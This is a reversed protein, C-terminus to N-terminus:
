QDCDVTVGQHCYVTLEGMEVTVCKRPGDVCQDGMEECCFDEAGGRKPNTAGVLLSPIVAFAIAFFGVRTRTAVRFEANEIM